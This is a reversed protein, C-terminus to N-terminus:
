SGDAIVQEIGDLQWSGGTARDQVFYWIERVDFTQSSDGQGESLLANFLVKAREEEETRSVELLTPTVLLVAVTSPQPHQEGQEQLVALMEPTLFHTLEGLERAAWATQLRTFFLKAGELFDGTDFGDPIRLSSTVNPNGAGFGQGGNEEGEPISRFRDWASAAQQKVTPVRREGPAETEDPTDEESNQGGLNIGFHLILRFMVFIVACAIVLDLVGLGTSPYGFLSGIASGAFFSGILSSGGSTGETAGQQLATAAIDEAGLALTGSITLAVLAIVMSRLLISIRM